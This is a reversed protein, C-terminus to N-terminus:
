ILASFMSVNYPFRNLRIQHVGNKRLARTVPEELIKTYAAEVEDIFDLASRNSRSEYWAIAEELDATVGPHRGLRKM